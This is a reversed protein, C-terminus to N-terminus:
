AGGAVVGAALLAVGATVLALMRLADGPAPGRGADRAAYLARGRHHAWAAGLAPLLGAVVGLPEGRQLAHGIVLAAIVVLSLVCRQWGLATRENALTPREAPM